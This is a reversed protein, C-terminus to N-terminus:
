DVHFVEDMHAWQEGDAATELREQCPDTLKWWDQTVPDQAMRAMDAEFDDGVYEFYGFLWGDRLYISYNRIGSDRIQNLVQPWVDAHLRLYEEEKEPRLRIVSGFRRAASM